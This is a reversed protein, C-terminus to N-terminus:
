FFTSFSSPSPQSIASAGWTEEAERAREEEQRKKMEDSRRKEEERNRTREEERRMEEQEERRRAEERRRMEETDVSHIFDTTTAYGGNYQPSLLSPASWTNEASEYM